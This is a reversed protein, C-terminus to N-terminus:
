VLLLARRAPNKPCSPNRFPPSVYLCDFEAWVAAIVPRLPVASLIQPETRDAAQPSCERFDSLNKRVTHERVFGSRRASHHGEGIAPTVRGHEAVLDFVGVIKIKDSIERELDEKRIWIRAHERGRLFPYAALIQRGGLRRRGRFELRHMWAHPHCEM